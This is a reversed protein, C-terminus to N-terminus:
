MSIRHDRAAPPSDGTRDIYTPVRAEHWTTVERAEQPELHGDGWYELRELDAVTLTHFFRTYWKAAMTLVQHPLASLVGPERATPRSTTGPRQGAMGPSSDGSGM